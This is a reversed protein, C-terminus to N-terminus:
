LNWYWKYFKTFWSERPAPKYPPVTAENRLAVIVDEHGEGTKYITYMNSYVFKFKQSRDWSASM